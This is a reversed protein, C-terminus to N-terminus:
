QRNGKVIRRRSPPKDAAHRKRVPSRAEPAARRAVLTGIVGILVIGAMFLLFPVDRSFGLALLVAVIGLRVYVGPLIMESIEKRAISLAMFSLALLFTGALQAWAASGADFGIVSGAAGPFFLLPAGLLATSGTIYLQWLTDARSM